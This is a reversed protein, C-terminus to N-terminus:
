TQIGKENRSQVNNVRCGILKIRGQTNTFALQWSKGSRAGPIRRTDLAEQFQGPDVGGGADINMGSGDGDFSIAYDQRWPTFFDGNVNSPDWPLATFPRDYTTSSRTINSVVNVRNAVGPFVIDVSYKPNWTALSFSEDVPRNQGSVSLGYARTLAYSKIEAYSRGTSTNTADLLEDGNDAEEMLNVCGDADLFFLREKGNLFSKAFEVVTFGAGTDLPTWGQVMVGTEWVSNGLRVSAIFDFVAVGFTERTISGVTSTPGPPLGFISPTWPGTLGPATYEVEGDGYRDMLTNGGTIYFTTSPLHYDNPYHPDDGLLYVGDMASEGGGTITVTPTSTAGLPLSVYLKNDWHAMRCSDAQTWDVKAMVKTIAASLPVDVGLLEGLDTQRIVYVGTSSLFYANSGSMAWAGQAVCGLTTSRTDSDVQSLDLTLSSLVTWSSGKLVIATGKGFKFVDVIEDSSGSNIRFENSFSFHIYDLYNTAVIYDVKKYSGGSITAYNDTSSPEYATAVLLLDNMFAATAANPLINYARTWAEPNTDPTQGAFVIQGQAKAGVATDPTTTGSPVTYTFTTSSPVSQIQFTGNYAATAAGTITVYQGASFGHASAFTATALSSTTTLAASMTQVSGLARWYYAHNSCTITGTAPTTLGTGMLTYTFTVADIVTVSWRGNYVAQNAGQIIVDSGTVYGHEVNTVVTAVNNAWTLSTVSLYPGYAMEDAPQGTAVVAANYITNADFLAILDQFGNDLSNLVLPQLYRGRFLFVQNFAQVFKCASVIAIGQPLTVSQPANGPRTVYVGGGAARLQWELGNPDRFIGFGCPQGLGLMVGANTVYNAWVPKQVGKRTQPLGDTYRLNTADNLLGPGLTRADRQDCAWLLAEGDAPAVEQTREINPSMGNM